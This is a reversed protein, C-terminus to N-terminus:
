AMMIHELVKAVKRSYSMQHWVTTQHVAGLGRRANREYRDM